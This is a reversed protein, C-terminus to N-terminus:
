NYRYSSLALLVLAPIYFIWIFSNALLWLPGPELVVDLGVLIDCCFFCVMGVAAMRSNILPLLGLINCSIGAWLSMSLIIGYIFAATASLSNQITTHMISTIVILILLFMISALLLKKKQCQNVSSIKVKLGTSHRITLLIQCVAFFIIGIVRQRVAFAAEGFCAFLLASEMLRSDNFSLGDKGVSWAIASALVVNIRKLIGSPYVDYILNLNSFRSFDLIVSWIGFATIIFLIM